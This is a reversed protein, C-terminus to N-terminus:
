GGPVVTGSEPPYLADTLAKPPVSATATPEVVEEDILVEPIEPSAYAYSKPANTRLSTTTSPAGAIRPAGLPPGGPTSIRPGAPGARGVLPSSSNLGPGVRSGPAGMPGGRGKPMGKGRGKFPPRVFGRGRGGGGFGKGGGRGLGVPGQILGTHQLPPSDFFDVEPGQLSSTLPGYPFTGSVAQQTDQTWGMLPVEGGGEEPFFDTVEAGEQLGEGDEYGEEGETEQVDVGLDDDGEAAATGGGETLEEAMYPEGVEDVVVAWQGEADRAWWYGDPGVQCDQAADDQVMNAQVTRYRRRWERPKVKAKAM